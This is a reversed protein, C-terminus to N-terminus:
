PEDQSGIWFYDPRILHNARITVKGSRYDVQSAQEEPVTPSSIKQNVATVTTSSDKQDRHRKISPIDTEAPIRHNTRKKPDDANGKGTQIFSTNSLMSPHVMCLDPVRGYKRRFYDAARAVKAPLTTAPDNDFWLMGNNM